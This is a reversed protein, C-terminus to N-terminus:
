DCSVTRCEIRFDFARAKGALASIEQTLERVVGPPSSKEAQQSLISIKELLNELESINTIRESKYLM